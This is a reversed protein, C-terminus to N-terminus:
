LVGEQPDGAAWRHSVFTDPQEPATAATAPPAAAPAPSSGPDQKPKLTARLSVLKGLLDFWFPAGLSVAFATLLWGPIHEAVSTATVTETGQWGIPLQLPRLADLQAKAGAEDLAKPNAQQATEAQAVLAKRASDNYSLHGILALTDVNIGLTVLIALGFVVLQTQRKYWGSVREMSADFWAELQKKVQEIDNGANDIAASLARRVPENQISLAASRLGAMTLPAGDLLPASAAHPGGGRIMLDLLAVSFSKSPIYSPLQGGFRPLWSLLRGRVAPAVYDGFYLGNILPHEYFAKVLGSGQPDQFLECLGSYLGVARTKIAAELLERFASCVTALVLYIFSLGIAIELIESGFM